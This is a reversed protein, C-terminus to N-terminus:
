SGSAPQSPSPLRTGNRAASIGDRALPPRAASPRLTVQFNSRGALQLLSVGARYAGKEDRTVFEEQELDSLFRVIAQTATAADAVNFAEDLQKDLVELRHTPFRKMEEAIPGAAGPDGSQALAVVDPVVGWHESAFWKGTRGLGTQVEDVVLLAGTRNCFERLWSEPFQM